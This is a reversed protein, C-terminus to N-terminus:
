RFRYNMEWGLLDGEPLDRLGLKGLMYLVQARHHMSHTIVHAITGGYTKETPPNDLVDSWLAELRNEDTLRRALGDFRQGAQQHRETLGDLTESREMARDVPVGLMLDTWTEVNWIMHALTARVTRHDIDIDQDLQANSLERCRRLVEETTWIDHGILREILDM